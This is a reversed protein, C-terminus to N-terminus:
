QPGRREPSPAHLLIKEKQEMMPSRKSPNFYLDYKERIRDIKNLRRNLDKMKHLSNEIEELKKETNKKEKEGMAIDQTILDGIYKLEPALLKKMEAEQKMLTLSKQCTQHSQQYLAIEQDLLRKFQYVKNHVLFDSNSHHQKALAIQINNLQEELLEIKLDSLTFKAYTKPLALEKQKTLQELDRKLACLQNQIKRLSVRMTKGKLKSADIMETRNTPHKSKAAKQEESNLRTEVANVTDQIQRHSDKEFKEIAIEKHLAAWVKSILLLIDDIQKKYVLSIKTSVLPKSTLHCQGKTEDKAEKSEVPTIEARVPGLTESLKQIKEKIQDLHPNWDFSEILQHFM